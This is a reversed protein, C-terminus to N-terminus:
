MREWEINQKEWFLNSGIGGLKGKPNKNYNRMQKVLKTGIKQRRYNEKVYIAVCEDGRCNWIVGVAVPKEGDYALSIKGGDKQIRNLERKLQWSIVYLNNNIAIEAYQKSKNQNSTRTVKIM